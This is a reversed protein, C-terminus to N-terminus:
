SSVNKINLPLSYTCMGVGEGSLWSGNPCYLENANHHFYFPPIGAVFNGEPHLM